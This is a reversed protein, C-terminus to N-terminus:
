WSNKWWIGTYIVKQPTTKKQPIINDPPLNELVINEHITTTRLNNIWRNKKEKMYIRRINAYALQDYSYIM